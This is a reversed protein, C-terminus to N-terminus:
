LASADLAGSITQFWRPTTDGPRRLALELRYPLLERDSLTLAPGDALLRSELLWQNDPLTTDAMAPTWDLVQPGDERALLARTLTERFRETDVGLSGDIEPLALLLVIEDAPASWSPQSVAAAAAREGLGYLAQRQTQPREPQGACGALILAILLSILYRRM